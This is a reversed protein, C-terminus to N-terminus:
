TKLNNFEAEKLEERMRTTATKRAHKSVVIICIVLFVGGCVSGVVLGAIAGPSLEGGSTSSPCSIEVLVSLSSLSYAPSGSSQCNNSPSKVSVSSFQGSVGQYQAIPVVVTGSGSLGSHVLLPSGAAIHLLGRLSILGGRTFNTSSSITLNGSVSIFAGSNISWSLSSVKLNGLVTLNSIFSISQGIVVSSGLLVANPSPSSNVLRSEYTGACGQSQSIFLTSPSSLTWSTAGPVISRAANNSSGSAVYAAKRASYCLYQVVNVGAAVSPMSLTFGNMSSYTNSTESSIFQSGDNTLGIYSGTGSTVEVWFRGDASTGISIDGSLAVFAGTVPSVAVRFFVVTPLPPSIQWVAATWGLSPNKSYWIQTQSASAGVVVWLDHYTSYVVDWGKDLGAAMGPDVFPLWSVGNGSYAIVANSATQQIGTAVWLGSATAANFGWAVGLCSGLEGITQSFSRGDGSVAMSQNPLNLGLTSGGCAVWLNQEASYAVSNIHMTQGISVQFTFNADLWTLGADISYVILNNPHPSRGGMVFDVSQSSALSVLVLVLAFHLAMFHVLM